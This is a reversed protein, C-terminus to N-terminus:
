WSPKYDPGKERGFLASSDRFVTMRQIEMQDIRHGVYFGIIPILALANKRQILFKWLAQMEWAFTRQNAM